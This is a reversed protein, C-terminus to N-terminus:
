LFVRRRPHRRLMTSRDRGPQPPVEPHSQLCIGRCFTPLSSILQRGMPARRCMMTPCATIEAQRQLSYCPHAIETRGELADKLISDEVPKGNRAPRPHSPAAEMTLTPACGLPHRYMPTSPIHRSFAVPSLLPQKEERIKPHCQRRSRPARQSFLWDRDAVIGPYPCTTCSPERPHSRRVADTVNAPRCAAACRSHCSIHGPVASPVGQPTALNTLGLFQPGLSHAASESLLPFSRLPAHARRVNPRFASDPLLLHSRLLLDPFYVVIPRAPTVSHIHRGSLDWLSSCM